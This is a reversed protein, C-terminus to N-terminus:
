IDTIKATPDFEEVEGQWWRFVADANFGASWEVRLRDGPPILFVLPNKNINFNETITGGSNMLEDLTYSMYNSTDALLSPLSFMPLPPFGLEFWTAGSSNMGPASSNIFEIARLTRDISDDDSRANYTQHLFDSQTFNGSGSQVEFYISYIFVLMMADNDDIINFSDSSVNSVTDKEPTLSIPKIGEFATSM